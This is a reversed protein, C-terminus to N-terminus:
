EEELTPVYDPDYLNPNKLIQYLAEQEAERLKRM